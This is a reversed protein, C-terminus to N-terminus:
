ASFSASVSKMKVDPAMVPSALIEASPPRVCPFYSLLHGSLCGLMLNCGLTVASLWRVYVLSNLGATRPFLDSFFVPKFVFGVYGIALM